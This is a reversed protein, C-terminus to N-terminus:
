NCEGFVSCSRSCCMEDRSCGGGVGKCPACLGDWWSACYRDGCCDEMAGCQANDYECSEARCIGLGCDGSCCDSGSGCDDGAEACYANQCTGGGCRGSCCDEDWGCSSGEETCADGDDDNGDDSPWSNDDEGEDEDDDPSASDHGGADRSDGADDSPMTPSSNTTFPDPESGDDAACALALAATLACLAIPRKM